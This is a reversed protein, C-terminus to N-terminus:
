RGSGRLWETWNLKEINLRSNREIQRTLKKRLKKIMKKLFKKSLNIMNRLREALRKEIDRASLSSNDNNRM